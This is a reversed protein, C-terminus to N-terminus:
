PNRYNRAFRAAFAKAERVTPFLEGSALEYNPGYRMRWGEGVRDWVVSVRRGGFTGVWFFSKGGATVSYVKQWPSALQEADSVCVCHPSHRDRMFEAGRKTRFPGIEAYDTERERTDFTRPTERKALRRGDAGVVVYFKAKM